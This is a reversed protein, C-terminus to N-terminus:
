AIVGDHVKLAEELSIKRDYSIDIVHQFISNLRKMIEPLFYDMISQKYQQKEFFAIVDFLWQTFTGLPQEIEALTHKINKIKEVTLDPALSIEFYGQLWYCFEQNTM